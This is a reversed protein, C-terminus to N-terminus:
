SLPSFAFDAELHARERKNVSFRAGRLLCSNTRLFRLSHLSGRQLLSRQVSSHAAGDKNSCLCQEAGGEASKRGVQAVRCM